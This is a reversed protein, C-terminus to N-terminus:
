YRQFLFGFQSRAEIVCHSSLLSIIFHKTGRLPLYVPSLRASICVDLLSVLCLFSLSRVSVVGDLKGVPSLKNISRKLSLKNLCIGIELCILYIFYKENERNAQLFFVCACM